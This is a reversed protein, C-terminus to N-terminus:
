WRYYTGSISKFAVARGRLEYWGLFSSPEQYPHFTAFPRVLRRFFSKFM